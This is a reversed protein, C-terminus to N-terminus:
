RWAGWGWNGFPAAKRNHTNSGSWPAAAFANLGNDNPPTTKHKRASKTRPKTNSASSDVLAPAAARVIDIVNDVSKGKESVVAKPESVTPENASVVSSHGIPLSVIQHPAGRRRALRSEHSGSRCQHNVFLGLLNECPDPAHSADSGDTVVTPSPLRIAPAQDTTLAAATLTLERRDSEGGERQVPALISMAGIMMGISALIAIMRLKRHMRPAPCLYGFEPHFNHPSLFQPYIPYLSPIKHVDGMTM